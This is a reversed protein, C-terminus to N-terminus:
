TRLFAGIMMWVAKLIGWVCAWSFVLRAFDLGETHHFLSRSRISEIALRLGSAIVAFIIFIIVRLGSSIGDVSVFFWALLFGLFVVAIFKIM